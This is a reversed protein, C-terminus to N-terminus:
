ASCPEAHRYRAAVWSPAYITGLYPTGRDAFLLLVTPRHLAALQPRFSQLAAYVSGSSGGVFLGHRDLLAHCGRVSDLESVTVLQDIRARHILPPCISSGIGPIHRPGPRGGFVVSGRVDVAIIRVAPFSEKLRHSIGAITGASSVPIFVYDLKPMQEVIEQGTLAYHAEMADPNSYQNTWFASPDRRCFEAVTRLRTALFGGTSDREDVQIVDHCASRLAAQHLATLNSDVVATFRLGLKQSFFALALALNGSSSEVVTSGEGIEKRAAAGQLIWYAVRDKISGVPNHGELKAFVNLGDDKLPVVPTPRLLERLAQVKREFAPGGVPALDAEIRAASAAVDMM